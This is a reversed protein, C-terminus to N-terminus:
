RLSTSVPRCFHGTSSAKFTWLSEPPETAARSKTGGSLRSRIGAPAAWHGVRGECRLLLRPDPLDNGVRSILGNDAFPRIAQDPCRAARRPAIAHRSPRLGQEASQDLKRTPFIPPARDGRLRQTSSKDGGNESLQLSSGVRRIAPCATPALGLMSSTSSAGIRTRRRCFISCTSSWARLCMCASQPTRSRCQNQCKSSETTPTLSGVPAPGAPRMLGEGPIAPPANGEGGVDSIRRHPPGPGKPSPSECQLRVRFRGRGQRAIAPAQQGAQGPVALPGAARGLIVDSRVLDGGADGPQEKTIVLRRPQTRAGEVTGTGRRSRGGTM